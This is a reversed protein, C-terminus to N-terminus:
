LAAYRICVPDLKGAPVEYIEGGTAYRYQRILMVRDAAVFPVVASAGPHHILDLECRAGNPLTVTETVMELQAGRYVRRNSM